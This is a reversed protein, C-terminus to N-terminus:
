LHHDRDPSVIMLDPCHSGKAKSNGSIRKPKGDQNLKGIDLHLLAGISFVHTPPCNCAETAIIVSQPLLGSVEIPAHM